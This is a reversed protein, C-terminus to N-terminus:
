QSVPHGAAIWGGTGGEVNIPTHGNKALIQAARASRGGSQCIVHVPKGKHADLEALRGPLEPLPLLIAGEVHGQQYEGPSRVDILVAVEGNSKARHFAAIDMSQVANAVQPPEGSTSAPGSPAPCATLLLSVPLWRLM